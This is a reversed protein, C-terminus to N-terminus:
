LHEMGKCIRHQYTLLSHGQAHFASTLRIYLASYLTIGFSSNCNFCFHENISIFSTESCYQLIWSAIWKEENCRIPENFSDFITAYEQKTVPFLTYFGKETWQKISFFRYYKTILHVNSTKLMRFGMNYKM